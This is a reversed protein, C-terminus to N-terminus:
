RRARVLPEVNWSHPKMSGGPYKLEVAAAVRAANRLYTAPAAVSRRHNTLPAARAWGPLPDDVRNVGLLHCWFKSVAEVDICDITVEIWEFSPNETVLAEERAQNTRQTAATQAM